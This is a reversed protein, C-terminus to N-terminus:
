KSNALAEDFTSNMLKMNHVAEIDSGTIDFWVPKSGWPKKEETVKKMIHLKEHIPHYLFIREGIIQGDHLLNFRVDNYAKLIGVHLFLSGHNILKM